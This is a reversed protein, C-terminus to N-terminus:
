PRAASRVPSYRLLRGMLWGTNTNEATFDSVYVEDGLVQAAGQNGGRVWLGPGVTDRAYCGTVKARKSRIDIASYLSGIAGCNNFTIGYSTYHTDFGGGRSDIHISDSIVTGFQAGYNCVSSYGSTATYGHRLRHCHLGSIFLGENLADERVGYGFGDTSYASPPDSTGSTNSALDSIYCNTVRGSMCGAFFIGASLGDSIHVNEIVSTDCWRTDIAFLEQFSNSSNIVANLDLQISLNRYAVGKLLSIPVLEAAAATTYDFKLPSWPWIVDDVINKISIFEARTSAQGSVILDNSVLVCTQGVVLGKAAVQGALLPISLDHAAVNAALNTVGARTVGTGTAKFLSNQGVKVFKTLNPGAGIVEVGPNIFRGDPTSTWTGPGVLVNMGRARADAAALNFTIENKAAGYNDALVYGPLPIEAIVDAVQESGAVLTAVQDLTIRRTTGAQNAELQDDANAQSAAPLESIKIETIVNSSDPM